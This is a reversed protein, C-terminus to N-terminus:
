AGAGTAGPAPSTIAIGPAAGSGVAKTLDLKGAAERVKGAPDGALKERVLDPRHLSDYFQDILYVELGDVVSLYQAGNPSSDFFGEPTVRLWEGDGLRFITLLLAGSKRDWHRVVGAEDVSVVRRGDGAF